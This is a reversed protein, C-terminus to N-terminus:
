GCGTSASLRQAQRLQRLRMKHHHRWRGSKVAANFFHQCGHLQLVADEDPGPVKPGNRHQRLVGIQQADDGLHVGAVQTLAQLQLHPRNFLGWGIFHIQNPMGAGVLIGVLLPHPSRNLPQEATM